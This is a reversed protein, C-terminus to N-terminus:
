FLQSYDEFEDLQAHLVFKPESISAEKFFRYIKEFDTEVNHDIIFKKIISDKSHMEEIRNKEGDVYRNFKDKNELIKLKSCDSINIFCLIISLFENINNAVIGNAGESDIYGIKEDNLVVYVGGSRDKAFPVIKYNSKFGIILNNLSNILIDEDLFAVDLEEFYNYLDKHNIICERIKRVKPELRYEYGYSYEITYKKNGKYKNIEAGDIEIINKKGLWKKQSIVYHKTYNIESIVKILENNNRTYLNDYESANIVKRKTDWISDNENKPYFQLISDDGGHWGLCIIFWVRESIKWLIIGDDEIQYSGIFNNDKMYNLIIETDKKLKEKLEKIKYKNKM